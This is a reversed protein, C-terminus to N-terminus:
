GGTMNMSSHISRNTSNFGLKESIHSELLFTDESIDFQTNTDSKVDAM